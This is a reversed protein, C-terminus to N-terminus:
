RRKTTKTLRRDRSDNNRGSWPMGPEAIRNTSPCLKQRRHFLCIVGSWLLLSSTPEPVGALTLNDIAFYAPTNMGFQGVDSSNMDFSLSTVDGLGTLDMWTWNSVIESKGDRFDALFFDSSGIQTRTADLSQVTLQFFDGEAFRGKVFNTTGDENDIGEAVAFHAYTTNTIYMGKLSTPQQFMVTAQSAGSNFAVLFNESGDVGGGGPASYASYKNEFGATELDTQNSAAWAGPFGFEFTRNFSVGKSIISSQSADGILVSENEIELEDFDVVIDATSGWSSLLLISSLTIVCFTLQRHYM